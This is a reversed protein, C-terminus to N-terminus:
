YIFKFFRQSFCFIILVSAAAIDQSKTERTPKLELFVENGVICSSRYHLGGRGKMQRIRESKVFGRLLCM